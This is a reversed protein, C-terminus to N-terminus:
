KNLKFDHLGIQYIMYPWMETGMAGSYSGINSTSEFEGNEERQIDSLYTFHFETRNKFVLLVKMNDEKEKDTEGHSGFCFYFEITGEKGQEEFLTDTEYTDVVQQFPEFEIISFNFNVSDIQVMEITFKSGIPFAFGPAPKTPLEQALTKLSILLFLLPIFNKM